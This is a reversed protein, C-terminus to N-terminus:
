PTTTRGGAEAGPVDAIRLSPQHVRWQGEERILHLERYRHTSDVLYIRAETESEEPAVDDRLTRTFFAIEDALLWTLPAARLTAGSADVLPVGATGSALFLAKGGGPTGSATDLAERTASSLLEWAAALDERVLADYLSRAALTPAHTRLDPVTTEVYQLLEPDDGILPDIRVSPGCAIMLAVLAAAAAVRGALPAVRRLFCPALAPFSATRHM